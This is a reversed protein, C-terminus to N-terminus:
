KSEKVIKINKGLLDCVQSLTLEESKEEVDIGSIEKFIDANFHPLKKLQEVEEKTANNYAIQFAEKYEFVKLYGGAVLYNKNKEKEEDSMDKTMIWKTLDFYLFSPFVIKQLEKHSIAINFLSLGMDDITSMYGTSRDGTSWSGTSRDGTSMNGTSRNGTSWYGTSWSGTSRDGTSGNGTSMNGTSMNGTSMDGTSMDGTSMDGTSGYGTNNM